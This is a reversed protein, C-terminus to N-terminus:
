HGYLVVSLKENDKAMVSLLAYAWKFRRYDDRKSDSKIAKLATDIPIARLIDSYCDTTVKNECEDYFYILQGSKDDIKNIASEGGCKCLDIEAYKIFYQEGNDSTSYKSPKGIYLKTEYGM